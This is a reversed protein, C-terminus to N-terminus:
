HHLIRGLVDFWAHKGAHMVIGAQVFRPKYTRGDSFVAGFDTTCYKLGFRRLLWARKDFRRNLGGYYQNSTM